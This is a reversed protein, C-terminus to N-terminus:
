LKQDDTVAIDPKAKQESFRPMIDHYIFLAYYVLLFPV